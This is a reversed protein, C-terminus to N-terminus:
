VASNQGFIDLISWFGTISKVPRQVEISQFESKNGKFGALIPSGCGSAFGSNRTM